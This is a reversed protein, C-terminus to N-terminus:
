ELIRAQFIGRGSAGLPSYDVPDCPTSCSQAWVILQGPISELIGSYSIVKATM